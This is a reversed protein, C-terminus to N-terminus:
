PVGYRTTDNDDFSGRLPDKFRPKPADEKKPEMVWAMTHDYTSETASKVCAHAAQALAVVVDIKHSQKEKAIRWGRSTEIAVARSVALRMPADPYLVLNRGEILEFLNQSAITLNGPSQPFEEIMLGRRTLRQAVAQMQWPDFLVKRVPFRKQLDLLTESNTLTTTHEIKTNAKQALL